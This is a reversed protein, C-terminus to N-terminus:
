FLKTQGMASHVSQLLRFLSLPSCFFTLTLRALRSRPRSNVSNLVLLLGLDFNNKAKYVENMWLKLVKWFLTIKLRILFKNHSQLTVHAFKWFQISYNYCTNPGLFIIFLITQLIDRICGFGFHFNELYLCTEIIFLLRLYALKFGLKQFLSM